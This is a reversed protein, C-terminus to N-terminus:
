PQKPATKPVRLPPVKSYGLDRVNLCGGGPLKKEKSVFNSGEIEFVKSEIAYPQAPGEHPQLPRVFLSKTNM